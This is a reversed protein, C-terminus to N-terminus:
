SLGERFMETSVSNNYSLYKHIINLIRLDMPDSFSDDPELFHTVHISRRWSGALSKLNAQSERQIQESQPKDETSNLQIYLSVKSGVASLTPSLDFTKLSLHSM